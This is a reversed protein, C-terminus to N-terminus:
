VRVVYEFIFGSSIAVGTVKYSITCLIINTFCVSETRAKIEHALRTQCSRPFRCLQIHLQILPDDHYYLKFRHFQKISILM